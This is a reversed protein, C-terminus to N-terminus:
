LGALGALIGFFIIAWFLREGQDMGSSLVDREHSTRISPLPGVLGHPVYRAEVWRNLNRNIEFPSSDMSAGSDCRAPGALLLAVVMAAVFVM